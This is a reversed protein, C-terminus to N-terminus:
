PCAAARTAQVPTDSGWPRPEPPPPQRTGLLCFGCRGGPGKGCRGRTVSQTFACSPPLHRESIFAAKSFDYAWAFTDFPCQTGRSPSIGLLGAANLKHLYGRPTQQSSSRSGSLDVACHMPRCTSFVLFKLSKNHLLLFM